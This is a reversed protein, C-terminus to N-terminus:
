LEQRNRKTKAHGKENEKARKSSGRRLSLIPSEIEVDEDEKTRLALWCVAAILAVALLALAGVTVWLLDGSLFPAAAAFSLKKRAGWLRGWWHM